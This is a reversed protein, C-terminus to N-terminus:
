LILLLKREKLGIGKLLTIFREKMYATTEPFNHWHEEESRSLQWFILETGTRLAPM